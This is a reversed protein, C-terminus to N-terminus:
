FCDLLLYWKRPQLTPLKNIAQLNRFPSQFIPSGYHLLPPITCCVAKTKMEIIQKIKNILFAFFYQLIIGIKKLLIHLINYPITNFHVLSKSM